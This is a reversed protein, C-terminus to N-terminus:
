ASKEEEDAQAMEADAEAVLEQSTVGYMELSQKIAEALSQVNGEGAGLGMAMLDMDLRVIKEFEHINRIRIKGAEVARIFEDVMKRITERYLQRSAVAAETARKELEKGVEKDRQEVRQQWNFSISWRKVTALHRNFKKAVAQLTRSSGLSYYYEFAERMELTEVKNKKM